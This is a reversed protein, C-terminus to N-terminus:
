PSDCGDKIVADQQNAYKKCRGGQKQGEVMTFGESCTVEIVVSEQHPDRRCEEAPEPSM